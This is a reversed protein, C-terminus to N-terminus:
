PADGYKRALTVYRYVALALIAAFYWWEPLHHTLSVALIPFLVLMLALDFAVQRLARANLTM